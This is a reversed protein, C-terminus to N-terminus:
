WPNIKVGGKAGGFPVDVIACKYSMLAALAMVEDQNVHNSYRIGGKTPTRHHSHQVRYAEIVKVSGNVQVPFHVQYVANCVKIQDLLGQDLKTYRAAKDFYNSVSQFFSQKAQTM